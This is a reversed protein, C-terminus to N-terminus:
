FVFKFCLQMLIEDSFDISRVARSATADPLQTGLSESASFIFYFGGVEFWWSCSSGKIQKQCWLELIVLVPIRVKITGTKM